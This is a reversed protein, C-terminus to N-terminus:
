LHASAVSKTAPIVALSAMYGVDVEHTHGASHRSPLPRSAPRDLGRGRGGNGM